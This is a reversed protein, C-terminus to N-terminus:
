PHGIVTGARDLHLALGLNPILKYIYTLVTGEYFPCPVEHYENSAM